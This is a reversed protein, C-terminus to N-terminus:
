LAAMRESLMAAERLYGALQAAAAATMVTPGGNLNVQVGGPVVRVEWSRGLWTEIDSV